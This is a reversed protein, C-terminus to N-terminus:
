CLWVGGFVNHLYVDELYMVCHVDRLIYQRLVHEWIHGFYSIILTDAVFRLTEMTRLLVNRPSFECKELPPKM